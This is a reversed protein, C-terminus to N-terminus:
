AKDRKRKNANKNWLRIADDSGKFSLPGRAGCLVHCQVYWYLVREQRDDKDWKMEQEVVGWPQHGCFPCLNIKKVKEKYDERMSKRIMRATQVDQITMKIERCIRNM